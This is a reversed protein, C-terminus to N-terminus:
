AQIGELRAWRRLLIAARYREIASDYDGVELLIDASERQLDSAFKPDEFAARFSRVADATRGRSLNTMGLYYHALAYKPSSATVSSLEDFSEDLMGRKFCAIGLYCRLDWYDPRLEVGRKLSECAERHRGLKLNYVGRFLLAEVYTPNAELAADLERVADDYRGVKGYAIALRCRIDPYGPRIQVAKTFGEIAQETRGDNYATIAENVLDRFEEKGLAAGRLEDYPPQLYRDSVDSIRLKEPLPVQLGHKAAQEFANAAEEHRGAENLAIALYCYAEMYEPNITVAGTLSEIAEALRGQKEYIVGLRYHLDPYRPNEEIAKRFQEEARALDSTKYFAFGMHAHTEAAYFVGLQYYPDSKNKITAIVQEFEVVAKDYEGRNYYEIGKNYHDSEGLGFLKTFLSM